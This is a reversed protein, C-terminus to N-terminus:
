YLMFLRKEKENWGQLDSESFLETEVEYDTLAKSVRGHEPIEDITEVQLDGEDADETSVLSDSDFERGGLM